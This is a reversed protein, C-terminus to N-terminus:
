WLFLFYLFVCLHFTGNPRTAWRRGVHPVSSEQGLPGHQFWQTARPIWARCKSRCASLTRKWTGTGDPSSFGVRQRFSEVMTVAPGLVTEFSIAHKHLLLSCRRCCVTGTQQQQHLTRLGDTKLLYFLMQFESHTKPTVSIYPGTKHLFIFHDFIWVKPLFNVCIALSLPYDKDWQLRRCLGRQNWCAHIVPSSFVQTIQLQLRSLKCHRRQRTSPLHADWNDEMERQRWIGSHSGPLRYYEKGQQSAKGHM